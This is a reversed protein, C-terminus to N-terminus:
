TIARIMILDTEAHGDSLTANPIQGVEQFGARTYFAIARGNSAAVFLELQRIGLDRAADSIGDILARAAGSGQADPQVFFAGLEARHKTQAKTLPILSGIGVLTAARFVGFSHGIDLREAITDLPVAAAEDYTTLFAEPYTSLGELRLARWAAADAGTLRRVSLDTM